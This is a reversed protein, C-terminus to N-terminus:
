LRKNAEAAEATDAREVRGIIVRLQHEQERHRTCPVEAVAQWRFPLAKSQLERADVCFYSVNRALENAHAPWPLVPIPEAYHFVFLHHAMNFSVLRAGQPLRAKAEATAKAIDVTTGEHANVMVGVHTIAVFTAIALVGRLRPREERASQWLVAALAGCVAAYLAAFWPSQAFWTNVRFVSIALVAIALACMACASGRAFLRWLPRWTAGPPADALRQVVLGALLAACPFLSMFYRPRSGPPLWVSPFAVAMSIVLFRASDRAEGLAARFARHRYVILLVSWPLLCVALEWPYVLL